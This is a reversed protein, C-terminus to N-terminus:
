KVQIVNIDQELRPKSLIAAQKQKTIYNVKEEVYKSYKEVLSTRETVMRHSEQLYLDASELNSLKGEFEKGQRELKAIRELHSADNILLTNAQNIMKEMKDDLKAIAENQVDIKQILLPVSFESDMTDDSDSEVEHKNLNSTFKTDRNLPTEKQDETQLIKEKLKEIEHELVQNTSELSTYSESLLKNDAALVKFGKELNDIKQDINEVGNTALNDGTHKKNLQDIDLIFRQNLFRQLKNTLEQYGEIKAVSKTDDYLDQDKCNDREHRIMMRILQYYM